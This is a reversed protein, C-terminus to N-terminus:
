WYAYYITVKKTEKLIIFLKKTYQKTVDDKNKIINQSNKNKNYIYEKSM